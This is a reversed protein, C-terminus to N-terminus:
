HLLLIVASLPQARRAPRKGKRVAEAWLRIWNGDRHRLRLGRVPARPLPQADPPRGPVCGSGGARRGERRLGDIDPRWRLVGGDGRRVPRGLAPGQVHQLALGRVGLGEAVVRPIWATGTPGVRWGHHVRYQVKRRTELGLGVVGQDGRGRRQELIRPPVARRGKGRGRQRGRISGRRCFAAEQFVHERLAAARGKCGSVDLEM